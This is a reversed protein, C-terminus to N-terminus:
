GAAQGRSGAVSQLFSSQKTAPEECHRLFVPNGGARSHCISGLNINKLIVM